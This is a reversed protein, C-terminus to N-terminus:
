GDIRNVRKLLTDRLLKRVVAFDMKKPSSYRICCKGANLGSLADRNANVVGEKLIYLSIYNKQSAFAVEGVGNKKYCPLRYDIAEEYGTLTELCLNRLTALCELRDAPVEKLYATVDKANSQM